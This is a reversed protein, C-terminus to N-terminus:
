HGGGGHKKVGDNYKCCGPLEQYATTDAKVLENDHGREALKQAIEQRTVKKPHIVATLVDTELDWSATKVGKLDYVATEIRSKCMGCVGKVKLEITEYKSSKAQDNEAQASAVTALGMFFMVFLASLLYKM